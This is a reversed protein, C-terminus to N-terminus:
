DAAGLPVAEPDTMEPTVHQTKPRPLALWLFAGVLTVLAVVRFAGEAGMRDSMEGVILNGVAGTAFIFGLIMGSAFGKRGPLLNQALVVILSHTGGMAGVVIAIAFAGAGTLDPLLFIGPASIILSFMILRRVDYRDGLQGLWVGAIGSAVWFASSLLGYESPSWGKSQFMLPMFTVIAPNSFSRLTVAIALIAFPIKPIAPPPAQNATPVVHRAGVSAAFKDRNPITVAMMIVAPIALLGLIFIPAISGSEIAYSGFAPNIAAKFWAGRSTHANNLLLGALAPGLGLGLQGFMFFWSANSAARKHDVDTAHMSGTPHFAGSGFGALTLPIFMLWYSGGAMVVVMSLLIFSVTWAVGLAGLWRGGTKDAIWGFFPQSISGSLDVASVALGVDRSSMPLIYTSIFALLVSRMSMFSDNTAHGLSVAWFLRKRPIQM